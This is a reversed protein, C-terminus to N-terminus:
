RPVELSINVKVHPNTAFMFDTVQVINSSPGDPPGLASLSYDSARALGDFRYKGQANTKQRDLPKMADRGPYLYVLAGKVTKRQTTDQFVQGEISGLAEKPINSSSSAQRDVIPLMCLALLWLLVVQIVM